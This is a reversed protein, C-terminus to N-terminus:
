SEADLLALAKKARDYTPDIEIARRLDKIAAHRDGRHAHVVARNHYASAMGPAVRIAMTLDAVAADFNRISGYANGRNYYFEAKDPAIRVADNYKEIALRPQGSALYATGLLDYADGFSTSLRTAEILDAIALEYRGQLLYTRARNLYAMPVDVHRTPGTEIIVSCAALVRTPEKGACDEATGALASTASVLLLSTLLLNLSKMDEDEAAKDAGVIRM